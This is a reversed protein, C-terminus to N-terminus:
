MQGPWTKISTSVWDPPDSFESLVRDKASPVDHIYHISEIRRMPGMCTRVPCVHCNGCCRAFIRSLVRHSLSVPPVAARARYRTERLAPVGGGHPLAIRMAQAHDDCPSISSTVMSRVRLGYGCASRGRYRSNTTPMLACWRVQATRLLRPTRLGLRLRCRCLAFGLREAPVAPTGGRCLGGGSHGGKRPSFHSLRTACM